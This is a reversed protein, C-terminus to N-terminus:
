NLIVDSLSMPILFVTCLDLPTPCGGFFIWWGVSLQRALVRCKCCPIKRVACAFLHSEYYKIWTMGRCCRRLDKLDMSTLNTMKRGNELQRKKRPRSRNMCHTTIALCTIRNLPSKGTTIRHIPLQAFRSSRYPPNQLHETVLLPMPAAWRTSDFRRRTVVIEIAFPQVLPILCQLMQSSDICRNSSGTRDYEKCMLVIGENASWEDEQVRPLSNASADGYDSLVSSVGYLRVIASNALM